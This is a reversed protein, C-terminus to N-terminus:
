TYYNVQLIIRPFMQQAYTSFPSILLMASLSDHAALSASFKLLLTPLIGRPVKVQCCTKSHVSVSVGDLFLSRPALFVARLVDTHRTGSSFPSSFDIVLQVDTRPTLPVQQASLHDLVPPDSDLLLM